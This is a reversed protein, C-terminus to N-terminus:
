FLYKRVYHRIITGAFTIIFWLVYPLEYNVALAGLAVFATDALGDAIKGGQSIDYREKIFFYFVPIPIFIGLYQFIAAGLLMHGLAILFFLYNSENEDSPTILEKFFEIM